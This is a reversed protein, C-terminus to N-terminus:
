DSKNNVIRLAPTTPSGVDRSISNYPLLSTKDFFIRYGFGEGNTM